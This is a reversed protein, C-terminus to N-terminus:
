TPASRSAPRDCASAAAPNAASLMVAASERSTQPRSASPPPPVLRARVSRSIPMRVTQAEHTMGTASEIPAGEASTAPTTSANPANPKM